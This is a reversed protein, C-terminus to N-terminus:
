ANIVFNFGSKDLNDKNDDFSTGSTSKLAEYRHAIDNLKNFENQESILSNFLSNQVGYVKSIKVVNDVYKLTPEQQSLKDFASKFLKNNNLDITLKELDATLVAGDLEINGFADKQINLRTNPNLKYEALKNKLTENIFTKEQGLEGKFNELKMKKIPNAAQQMLLTVADDMLIKRHDSDSQQGDTGNQNQTDQRKLQQPIQLAQETSIQSM